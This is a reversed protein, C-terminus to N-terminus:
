CATRLAQGGKFFSWTTDFGDNYRQAQHFPSADHSIIVMQQEDLLGCQKIQWQSANNTELRNLEAFFSFDFM